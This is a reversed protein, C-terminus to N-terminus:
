AGKYGSCAAKTSAGTTVNAVYLATATTPQRLPTPFVLQSGGYVAAAPANWITTGGSGDQLIMDTGVTAHANSFTCSTIYNRLGSAPAAILSTSTTSTMASTIVGSVFNEPNAYPMVILKGALDAVLQVQRATTVAANESSVAQAGLNMPNATIAVNTAVTGGVSQSGAVGGNVTNTGGVQALNIASNADPTVLLKTMSAVGQVTVVNTSAAGATGPASGAITATDTGVAVRQSGTGVAGTGTSTTVGNVQAVNVSQNAALAGGAQFPTGLTTNITTLRQALRQLLANLSCSGTDTACATAGPPGVDTNTTSVTADLAAGTPLASSTVVVNGGAQLPTGLANILSTLRQLSRQTLANISCSGTDTACATAGPPGLDTNTTTISADLAAGTPLPLSAASIPQTAQWFTGTVALGTGWLKVLGRLYQQLTGNADTIVATGTTAGATAQIAQEATIQTSQNASTAAGAPLTGGGTSLSCTATSGVICPESTGSDYGIVQQPAPTIFSGSGWKISPPTLATQGWAPLALAWLLVSAVVGRMTM